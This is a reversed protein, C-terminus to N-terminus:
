TTYVQLITRREGNLGISGRHTFSGGPVAEGEAAYRVHILVVAGGPEEARWLSPVQETPNQPNEWIGVEVVHGPTVHLTQASALTLAYRRIVKAM